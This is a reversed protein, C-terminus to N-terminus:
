RSCGLVWRWRRVALSSRGVWCFRGRNLLPRLDPETVQTLHRPATFSARLASRHAPLSTEITQAALTLYTEAERDQGM